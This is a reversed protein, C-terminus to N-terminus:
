TYTPVDVKALAMVDDSGNGDRELVEKITKPVNSPDPIRIFSELPKRIPEIPREYVPNPEYEEPIVRPKVASQPKEPINDPITVPAKNQTHTKRLHQQCNNFVSFRKFKDTQKGYDCSDRGVLDEYHPDAGKGM